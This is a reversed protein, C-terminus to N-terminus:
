GTGSYANTKYAVAKLDLDKSLRESKLTKALIAERASLAPLPFMFQRPLRRLVAEDIDGKAHKQTKHKQTQTNKHKTNTKNLAVVNADCRLRLIPSLPLFSVPRNTAALIVVREKSKTLLGDWCAMFEAKVSAHYEDFSSGGRARM